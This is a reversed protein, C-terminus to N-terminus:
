NLYLKQHIAWGQHLTLCWLVADHWQNAGDRGANTLCIALTSAYRQFAVHAPVGMWNAAMEVCVCMVCVSVCVCVCVCLFVVNSGLISNLSSFWPPCTHNISYSNNQDCTPVNCAFFTLWSLRCLFAPNEAQQSFCCLWFLCGDREAEFASIGVLSTVCVCVCVYM